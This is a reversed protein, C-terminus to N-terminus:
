NNALILVPETLNSLDERREGLLQKLMRHQLDVIDASREAFYQNGLSQFLKTYQELVKSTAYEPSFCKDQILERIESIMKPDQILQQHAPSFRM